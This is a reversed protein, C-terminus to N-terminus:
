LKETVRLKLGPFISVDLGVRLSGARPLLFTGNEWTWATIELSEPNVIWFERVGNHEYLDRKETQDRWATSPSLIEIVLDPAGRVGEDILKTEDCVVVLDPQVVTDTDDLSEDGEPLFVDLPSILPMCPKHEFYQNLRFDLLSVLRQHRRVPAPSMAFPVGHVLEWREGEPWAKYHSYRYHENKELASTGDVSRDDEPYRM